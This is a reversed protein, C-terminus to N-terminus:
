RNAASLSDTIRQLDDNQLQQELTGLTPRIWRGGYYYLMNRNELVTTDGSPGLWTLEDDVIASDHELFEVATVRYGILSDANAKKIREDQLYEDYTYEERVYPFEMDYLAAKDRHKWRWLAQRM